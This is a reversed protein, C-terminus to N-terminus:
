LAFDCFVYEEKLNTKLSAVIHKRILSSKMSRVAAIAKPDM